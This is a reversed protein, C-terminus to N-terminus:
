RPRFYERLAAPVADEAPRAVGPPLRRASLTHWYLVVQGCLVGRDLDYYLGDLAKGSYCTDARAGGAALFRKMADRTGAAPRAYDTGFFETRICVRELARGIDLRGLAPDMRALLDRTRVALKRLGAVGAFRPGVVQVAEIGTKLGLRELGLALGAVTGMSSFAVYIRDPEPLLGAEIQQKLEWAANVFGVTGLPSSGGPPIWVPPRGRALVSRASRLIAAVGIRATNPLLRLEAGSHLSVALNDAIYDANVQDLLCAITHLGLKRGHWATAAVFNSGTYGFTLLERAGRARADALLFDLKRVKNGGFDAASLDDRKLFLGEAGALPEVPTPGALLGARPLAAALRPYEHLLPYADM